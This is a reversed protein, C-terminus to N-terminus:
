GKGNNVKQLFYKICINLYVVKTINACMLHM